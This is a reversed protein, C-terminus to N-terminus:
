KNKTSPALWCVAVKDIYICDYQGPTATDRCGDSEPPKDPSCGTALCMSLTSLSGMSFCKSGSPCDWITTREDAYGCGVVTCYGGEVLTRGSKDRREPYCFQAPGCDSSVKCPSGVLVGAQGKTQCIGTAKHCTQDREVFNKWCDTDDSCGPLLCVESHDNYIISAPDCSLPTSKDKYPGTHFRKCPNTITSPTCEPLCYTGGQIPVRTCVTRYSTGEPSTIKPCSDEVGPTTIDEVTCGSIACVGTATGLKLCAARGTCGQGTAPDCPSGINGTGADAAV